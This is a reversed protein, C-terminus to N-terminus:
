NSLIIIFNNLFSLLNSFSASSATPPRYICLFISKQTKSVCAVAECVDDDFCEYQDVVIKEHVYMLVGGHLSKERDSRFVNFGKINIQVDTISPKLWTEVIGIFPICFNDNQIADIEDKLRPLKYNSKSRLSPTMGQINM